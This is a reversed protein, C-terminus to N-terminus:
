SPTPSGSNSISTSIGPLVSSSAGFTRHSCDANSETDDTVRAETPSRDLSERLLLGVGTVSVTLGLVILGLYGVAISGIDQIAAHYENTVHGFLALTGVVSIALGLGNLRLGTRTM